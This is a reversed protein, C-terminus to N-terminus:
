LHTGNTTKIIIKLINGLWPSLNTCVTHLCVIHFFPFWFPVIRSSQPVLSDSLWHPHSTFFQQICILLLLYSHRICLLNFNERETERKKKKKKKLSVFQIAVISCVISLTSNGAILSTFFFVRMWRNVNPGKVVVVVTLMEYLIDLKRIPYIKGSFDITFWLFFPLFCFM